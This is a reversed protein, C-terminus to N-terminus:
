ELGFTIERFKEVLMRIYTKNKYIFTQLSQANEVSIDAPLQGNSFHIWKETIEDHSFEVCNFVYQLGHAKMLKADKIWAANMSNEVIFGWLGDNFCSFVSNFEPYTSGDWIVVGRLLLLQDGTDSLVVLEMSPIYSLDQATALKFLTIPLNLPNYIQIAVSSNFFKANVMSCFWNFGETWEINGELSNQAESVTNEWDLAFEPKSTRSFVAVNEGEYGKLRDILEKDDAAVNSLVMGFRHVANVKWGGGLMTHLKEPYGTELEDQSLDIEDTITGLCHGHFWAIEIEDEEFDYDNAYEVLLEKEVDSPFRSLALYIGHPYIVRENALCFDVELLVGGHAKRKDLESQLEIIKTDRKSKNAFFYILHSLLFEGGSDLAVPEVKETATVNGETDVFLHVGQVQHVSNAVYESFPVRLESWETSAIICRIRNTPLQHQTRFLAVYKHIEHIADRASQNSRKLEIIVRLGFRDRALIDIRGGSGIANDLPIEVGTLELGSEIKDLNSALSQQIDKETPGSM